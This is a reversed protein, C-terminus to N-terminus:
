RELKFRVSRIENRGLRRNAERRLSEGTFSSLEHMHTSSRVEILLEGAQFRVPRAHQALSEGAAKNWADFIPFRALKKDLGSERLFGRVADQISGIGGRRKEARGSSPSRPKM